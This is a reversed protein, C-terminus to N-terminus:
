GALQYQGAVLHGQCDGASIHALGVLRRLSEILDGRFQLLRDDGGAHLRNTHYEGFEPANHPVHCLLETFVNIQHDFTFFDFEVLGDDFAQRIRESM